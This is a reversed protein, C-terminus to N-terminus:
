PLASILKHYIRCHYFCIMLSNQQLHFDYFKRAEPSELSLLLSSKRCLDEEQASAGNRVGGGARFANAFNLVLVPVSEGPESLFRFGEQVKRALSFSDANECVYSCGAANRTHPFDTFGKLKELDEPLFVRVAKQEAESFKLMKKQGNVTYFGQSCINLTENLMRKAAERM